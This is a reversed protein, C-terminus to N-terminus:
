QAALNVTRQGSKGPFDEFAAKMLEPLSGAADGAAPTSVRADYVPVFSMDKMFPKAAFMEIRLTRAPAETAASKTADRGDAAYRVFVAVDASEFATERWGKAALERKLLSACQQYQAADQGRSPVVVYKKPRADLQNQTQVTADHAAAAGTALLLAVLGCQVPFKV